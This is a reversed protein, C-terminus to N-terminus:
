AGFDTCKYVIAGIPTQSNSYAKVSGMKVFVSPRGRGGTCFLCDM